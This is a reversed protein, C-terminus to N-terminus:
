RSQIEAHTIMPDSELDEIIKMPAADKHTFIETELSWGDDKAYMRTDSTSYGMAKLKDVVNRVTAEKKLFVKLRLSTKPANLFFVGRFSLQIVLMLIGCFIGFEYFGAGFAMGIASTAWIGAATTLGQIVDHRVFIIGAGLFGIGSVIQAAVRAGDENGTEFFGYKSVIMLLASSMAVIAHTRIGADKSSTHREYGICAGMITACFIRLFWEISITTIM